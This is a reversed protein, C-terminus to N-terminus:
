LKPTGCDQLARFLWPWVLLGEKRAIKYRIVRLEWPGTLSVLPFTLTPASNAVPQLISAGSHCSISDSSAEWTWRPGACKWQEFSQLKLGLVKNWCPLSRCFSMFCWWFGPWIHQETKYGWDARWIHKGELFVSVIYYEFSIASHALPTLLLLDKLLTTGKLERFLGCGCLSKWELFALSRLAGFCKSAVRMHPVVIKM